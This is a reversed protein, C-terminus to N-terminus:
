ANAIIEYGNRSNWLCFNAELEIDYLKMGNDFEYQMANYKEDFVAGVCTMRIERFNKWPKVVLTQGVNFMTQEEKIYKERETM